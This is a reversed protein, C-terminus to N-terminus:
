SGIGGTRSRTQTMLGVENAKNRALLEAGDVGCIARLFNSSRGREPFADALGLGRLEGFIDLILADLM